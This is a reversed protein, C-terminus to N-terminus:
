GGPKRLAGFSRATRGITRSCSASPARATASKARDHGADPSTSRGSGADPPYRHPRRRRDARPRRPGSRNRGGQSWDDGRSPNDRHRRYFLLPQFRRDLKLHVIFPEDPSDSAPLDIATVVGAELGRVRVPTGVAAGQLRPFGALLTIDEAWLQRREGIRFIGWTGLGLGALVIVGLAVAQWRSLSRSM